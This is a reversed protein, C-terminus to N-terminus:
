KVLYKECSGWVKILYTLKSMVIGNALMLQTEKSARSSVMVLANIRSTLQKVLSQESGWLHAKWKMDQSIVGGLLKETETPEITHGGAQISVEARRAATKKTGM